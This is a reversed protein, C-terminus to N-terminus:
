PRTVVLADAAATRDPSSMLPNIDVEVVEPSACIALGIRIIAEVVASRDIGPRGRMPGLLRRGRLQDLMAAADDASVPALRIAVDDIVEAFIGGLGILVLPGFSPDRRAGVILELGELHPAILLGRRTAGDPLKKNLLETAAAHVEDGDRVGVRVAGVDSKHALGVADIKVVVPYGIADAQAVAEGPTAAREERVIPLGAAALWELSELEPLATAARDEDDPIANPATPDYGYLTRDAALAPWAPRPPEGAVRREQRAEWGAVAAIATFAEIAGRLVLV